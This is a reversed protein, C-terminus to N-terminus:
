SWPATSAAVQQPHHDSKKLDVRITSVAAGGESGELGAWRFTYGGSPAELDPTPAAYVLLAHNGFISSVATTAGEIATNRVAAGVLIRELEASLAIDGVSHALIPFNKFIHKRYSLIGFRDNPIKKHTEVSARRTRNRMGYFKDM